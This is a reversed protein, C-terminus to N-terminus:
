ESEEGDGWVKSEDLPRSLLEYHTPCFFMCTSNIGEGKTLVMGVWGEPIRHYEQGDDYWSSMMQSASCGEADCQYVTCDTYRM